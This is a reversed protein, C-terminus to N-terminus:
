TFITRLKSVSNLRCTCACADSHMGIRNSPGNRRRIDRAATRDLVGYIPPHFLQRPVNYTGSIVTAHMSLSLMGQNRFWLLARWSCWIAKMWKPYKVPTRSFPAPLTSCWMSKRYTRDSAIRAVHLIGFIIQCEPPHRCYMRRHFHPERDAEINM